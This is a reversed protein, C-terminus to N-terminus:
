KVVQDTTNTDKATQMNNNADSYYLTPICPNYTTPAVLLSATWTNNATSAGVINAQVPNSNKVVAAFNIYMIKENAGLAFAGNAALTNAQKGPNPTVATISVTAGMLMPTVLLMFAVAVLARTKRM